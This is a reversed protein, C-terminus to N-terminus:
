EEYPIGPLDTKSRSLRLPPVQPLSYLHRERPRVAATAPTDAHKDASYDIVRGSSITKTAALDAVKIGSDFSWGGFICVATGGCIEALQRWDTEASRDAAPLADGRAAPGIAAALVLVPWAALRM